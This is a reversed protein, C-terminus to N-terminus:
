FTPLPQQDLAAAILKWALDLHVGDNSSMGLGDLISQSATPHPGSLVVFGKGSWMESIAPNGDPYRAVVGQDPTVPGGYWLLDETSGDPFSELTMGYDVGQNALFYDALLPGNVVGLGYSVDQGPGPAPAAAIYAGACFGVYSIGRVQVAARLRAHTEATLSDAQTGGSGGPFILVGFASLEDLTMADLTASDVKVYTAGHSDLIDELSAVEPTWVGSGDFLLATTTYSRGAGAAPPQLTSGHDGGGTGPSTGGPSGGCSAFSIAVGIIWLVTGLRSM